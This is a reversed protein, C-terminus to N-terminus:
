NGLGGSPLRILVELASWCQKGGFSEDGFQEGGFQEPMLTMM